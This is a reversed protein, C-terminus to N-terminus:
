SPNTWDFRQRARSLSSRRGHQNQHPQHQAQTCHAKSDQRERARSLLLDYAPLNKLAGRFLQMSPGFMDLSRCHTNKPSFVYWAVTCCRCCRVRALASSDGVARAWTYKKLVWDTNGGQCRPGPKTVMCFWRWVKSVELATSAITEKSRNWFKLALLFKNTVTDKSIYVGVKGCENSTTDKYLPSSLPVPTQSKNWLKPGKARASPLAQETLQWCEGEAPCICTSRSTCLPPSLWQEVWGTAQYSTALM